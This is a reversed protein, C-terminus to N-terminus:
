YEQALYSHNLLSLLVCPLFPSLRGFMLLLCFHRKSKLIGNTVAPPNWNVTISNHTYVTVALGVVAEPRDELTTCNMQDVPSAGVSNYVSVTVRCILYQINSRM